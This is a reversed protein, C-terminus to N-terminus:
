CTINIHYKTDRSVMLCLKPPYSVRSNITVESSNLYLPYRATMNWQTSQSRVYLQGNIDELSIAYPQATAERFTPLRVTKNVTQNVDLDEMLNFIEGGVYRATLTLTKQQEEKKMSDALNLVAYALGVVLIFGVATRAVFGVSLQGRLM